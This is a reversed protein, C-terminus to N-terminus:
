FGGCVCMCVCVCMVHDLGIKKGKWWHKSCSILVLLRLCKATLINSLCGPKIKSKNSSCWFLCVGAPTGPTGQHVQLLQLSMGLSRFFFISHGPGQGSHSGGEVNWVISGPHPNNAFVCATCPPFLLNQVISPARHHCYPIGAHLKGVSRRRAAHRMLVPSGDLSEWSNHKCSLAFMGQGEPVNCRSCELFIPPLYLYSQLYHLYNFFFFLTVYQIYDSYKYFM